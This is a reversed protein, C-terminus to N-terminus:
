KAIKNEIHCLSKVHQMKDLSFKNLNINKNICNVKSRQVALHKCSFKPNEGLIEWWVIKAPTFTTQTSTM